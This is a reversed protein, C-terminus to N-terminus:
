IMFLRQLRCHNSWNDDSMFLIGEQIRPLSSHLNDGHLHAKLKRSPTTPLAPDPNRNPSQGKVAVNKMGPVPSRSEPKKDSLEELSWEYKEPRRRGMNAPATKTIFPLTVHNNRSKTVDGSKSAKGGHKTKKIVVKLEGPVEDSHTKTDPSSQSQQTDNGKANRQIHRTLDRLIQREILKMVNHSKIQRLPETGAPYETTTRPRLGSYKTPTCLAHTVATGDVRVQAIPVTSCTNHSNRSIESNSNLICATRSPIKLLEVKAYM